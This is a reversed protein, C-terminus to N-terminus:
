FIKLSLLMEDVQSGATLGPQAVAVAGTKECLLHLRKLNVTTEFFMHGSRWPVEKIM